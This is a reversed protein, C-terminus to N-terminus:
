DDYFKMMFQRIAALEGAKLALTVKVEPHKMAGKAHKGCVKSYATKLYAKVQADEARAAKEWIALIEPSPM